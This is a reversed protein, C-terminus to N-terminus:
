SKQQASKLIKTSCKENKVYFVNFLIILFEGSLFAIAALFFAM